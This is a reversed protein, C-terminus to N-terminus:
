KEFVGFSAHHLSFAQSVSVAPLRDFMTRFFLMAPSSEIWPFGMKLRRHGANGFGEKEAAERLLSSFTHINCFVDLTIIKCNSLIFSYQAAGCM